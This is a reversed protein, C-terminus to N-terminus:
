AGGVARRPQSATLPTAISRIFHIPPAGMGPGTMAMAPQAMHVTTTTRTTPSPAVLAGSTTRVPLPATVETRLNLPIGFSIANHRIETTPSMAMPAFTTGAQHFTGKTMAQSPLTPTCVEAPATATTGPFFPSLTVAPAPSAKMSQVAPTVPSWPPSCAETSGAWPSMAMPSGQAPYSTMQCSGLDLSAAGAMQIVALSAPMSEAFQMSM